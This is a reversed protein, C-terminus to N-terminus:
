RVRLPSRFTRLGPSRYPSKWQPSSASAPSAQINYCAGTFWLGGPLRLLKKAPVQNYLLLFSEICGYGEPPVVLVHFHNVDLDSMCSSVMLPLGPMKNVSRFRRFRRRLIRFSSSFFICALLHLCKSFEVLDSFSLWFAMRCRRRRPKIFQVMM